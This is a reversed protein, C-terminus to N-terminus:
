LDADAKAAKKGAPAPTPAPAQASQEVILERVFDSPIDAVEADTFDFPEGIPAMVSKGDRHVIVGKLPVLTPM